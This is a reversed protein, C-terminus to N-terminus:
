KEFIINHLLNKDGTKMYVTVAYNYRNYNEETHEFPFQEDIRKVIMESIKLSEDSVTHKGFKESLYKEVNDSLIIDHFDIYKNLRAKTTISGIYNINDNIRSIDTNCIIEYNKKYEKSMNNRVMDNIETFIWRELLFNIKKLEEPKCTKIYEDKILNWVKQKNDDKATNGQSYNFVIGKAEWFRFAEKTEKPLVSNLYDTIKQIKDKSLYTQM